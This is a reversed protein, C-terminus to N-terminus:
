QPYCSSLFRLLESTVRGHKTLHTICAQAIEGIQKQSLCNKSSAEFSLGDLGLEDFLKSVTDPTADTSASSDDDLDKEETLPSSVPDDTTGSVCIPDCTASRYTSASVPSTDPSVHCNDVPSPVAGRRSARYRTNDSVAMASGLSRQDFYITDSSSPFIGKVVCDSSTDV